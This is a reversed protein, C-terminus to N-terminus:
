GIVESIEGLVPDGNEWRHTRHDEMTYADIESSSAAERGGREVMRDESDGSGAMRVM